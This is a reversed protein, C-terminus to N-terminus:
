GQGSTSAGTPTTKIEYNGRIALNTPYASRNNRQVNWIHDKCEILTDFSAVTQRASKVNSTANIVLWKSM